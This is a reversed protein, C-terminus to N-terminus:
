RPVMVSLSETGNVKRSLREWVQRRDPIPEEREWLSQYFMGWEDRQSEWLTWGPMEAERRGERMLRVTGAIPWCEPLSRRSSPVAPMEPVHSDSAECQYVFHGVGYPGTEHVRARSFYWGIGKVGVLVGLHLPGTDSGVIWDCRSLFAPLEELTTRGCANLVRGLCMPSLQDELALSIEREGSGGILVVQSNPIDRVIAEILQGWVPFPVTRDRDGAGLVIAVKKSLSNDLAKELDESITPDTAMLRPVHAPPRVGCLGCFADALHIRNLGRKCAVDTLYQPWAPLRSYLPGYEGPGIVRQGLLHALLIGRPHNNLNYAVAYSPFGQDDWYQRGMVVQDAFSSYGRGVLKVWDAGKWSFVRNMGPFQAALPVLPSPCLVDFTYEHYKQTLASFAPLSQVLDGLRALQIFLAQPRM